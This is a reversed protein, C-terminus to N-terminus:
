YVCLLFNTSIYKFLKPTKYYFQADVAFINFALDFCFKSCRQVFGFYNERWIARWKQIECNVKSVIKTRTHYMCSNAKATFLFPKMEPPIVDIVVVVDLSIFTMHEYCAYMEFVVCCLFPKHRLSVLIYSHLQHIYAVLTDEFTAYAVVRYYNTNWWMINANIFFLFYFPRSCLLILFVLLMLKIWLVCLLKMFYFSLWLIADVARNLYISTCVHM